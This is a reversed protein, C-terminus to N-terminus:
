SGKTMRPKGSPVKRQEILEEIRRECFGANGMRPPDHELAKRYLEIAKESNHLRLDYIVAAQFRAPETITPDWQWAREYWHVARINENFYEKYIDAIRYASLAIKTSRPHERVLQLLLMLAQREKDYNTIGPGIRGARYLKMAREYLQDAAPNPEIPRLEPGPIEAELFYMYTRVPDFRARVNRVRRAKYSRVDLREYFEALEDVAALYAKRAAVTHEVMARADTQDFSEARPAVIEPINAWRFTVAKELNELERSAWNYKDLQGRQLFYAKLAKLRCTYSVRAKEVAVVAAREADNDPRVYLVEPVKRDYTRPPSPPRNCGVTLGAGFAGLIAATTLTRKM